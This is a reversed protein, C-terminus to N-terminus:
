GGIILVDLRSVAIGAHNVPCRMRQGQSWVNRTPDLIDVQACLKQELRENQYLGGFVLFKNGACATVHRERPCPM